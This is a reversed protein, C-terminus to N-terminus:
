ILQLKTQCSKRTRKPICVPLTEGLCACFEQRQGRSYSTLSLDFLGEERKGKLIVDVASKWALHGPELDTSFLLPWGMVGMPENKSIVPGKMCYKCTILVYTSFQKNASFEQFKEILWWDYILNVLCDRAMLTFYLNSAKRFRKLTVHQDYISTRSHANCDQWDWVEKQKETYYCDMGVTLESSFCFCIPLLTM